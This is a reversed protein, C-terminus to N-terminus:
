TAPQRGVNKKGWRGDSRRFSHASWKWKQRESSRPGGCQPVSSLSFNHKSLHFAEGLSRWSSRDQAARMWGVGAIKVMDDTWTTAM